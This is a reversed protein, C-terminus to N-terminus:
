PLVTCYVTCLIAMSLLMTAQDLVIACFVVVEFEFEVCEVEVEFREWQSRLM